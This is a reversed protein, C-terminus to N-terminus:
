IKEFFDISVGRYNKLEHVGLIYGFNQLFKAFIKKGSFQASRSEM